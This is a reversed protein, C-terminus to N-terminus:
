ILSPAALSAPSSTYLVGVALPVAFGSVQALRVLWKPVPVEFKRGVLRCSSLVLWSIFASQKTVNIKCKENQNQRM